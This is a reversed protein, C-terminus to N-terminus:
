NLIGDINNNLTVQTTSSVYCTADCGNHYPDGGYGGRYWVNVSNAGLTGGSATLITSSGRCINATGTINTPATTQGMVRALFMMVLSILVSAKYFAKAM